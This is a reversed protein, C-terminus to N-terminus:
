SREGLPLEAEVAYGGGARRGATVRGGVAAARERMGILGRGSGGGAGTGTGDDAVTIKLLDTAYDLCVRATGTGAHKSVNTLAEQVIRYGSVDVASSATRVEGRRRVDVRLGARAFSVVLDDLRDLGPVPERPAEPSGLLGVIARLESLAQKSDEKVHSLTEALRAPDTREGEHLYLAVGAQANILTLQHAVVDHLERAIRVREEAVLRAAEDRRAQEARVAREELAAVYARQARVGGGAAVALWTSTIVAIMGPSLGRPAVTVLQAMAVALLLIGATLGVRGGYVTTVTYLAVQAPLMQPGHAGGMGGRVVALLVTVVLVGVPWRRRGLLVGSALLAYGYDIPVLVRGQPPQGAFRMMGLTLLLSALAVAADHAWPYRRRWGQCEM